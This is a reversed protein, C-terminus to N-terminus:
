RALDMSCYLEKHILQLQLFAISFFLLYLSQVKWVLNEHRSTLIMYFSYSTVFLAALESVIDYGVSAVIIMHRNWLLEMIQNANTLFHFPFDNDKVLM